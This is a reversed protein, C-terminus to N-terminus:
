RFPEAQGQGSLQVYIRALMVMLLVTIGAAAIQGVLAVVLAGITLPDLSGFLLKALLGMVSAVAALVIVAAIVFLLFFGFLRWWNGATLQWSRKLIAIPGIREASAVPSTMLMRIAFFLMAAVAVLVILAAGPSVRPNGAAAGQAGAAGMIGGIVLAFPLIWLITAGLYAPAHGFAHGITEGVTQRSGLALRILALQGVLGILLAVLTVITWYGVKPFGGAASTPTVVDSVVGPLVFLALAITAFLKGDRAIIATTEEWAKSISVNAM